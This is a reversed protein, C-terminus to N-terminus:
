DARVPAPTGRPTTSGDGLQGRDNRGWCVAEGSRSMGCTYGEGASISSFSLGGGVAIPKNRDNKSGDGLQGMRNEGWCFAEGGGTLGCSHNAGVTVATFPGAANV